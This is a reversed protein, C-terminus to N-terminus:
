YGALLEEMRSKVREPVTCFVATDAIIEQYTRHFLPIM